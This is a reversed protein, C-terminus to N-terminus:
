PPGSARALADALAAALAELEVVTRDFALAEGHAGSVRVQHLEGAIVEREIAVLQDWALEITGSASKVRLGHACLEIADRVLVARSGIGGARPLPPPVLGGLLLPRPGSVTAAGAYARRRRRVAFRRVVAGLRSAGPTRYPGDADDPAM